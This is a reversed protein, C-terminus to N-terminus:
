HDNNPFSFEAFTAGKPLCSVQYDKLFETLKDINYGEPSLLLFENLPLKNDAFLKFVLRQRDQIYGKRSSCDKM